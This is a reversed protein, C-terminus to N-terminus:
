ARASTPSRRLGGRARRLRLSRLTITPIARLQLVPVPSPLQWELSLSQWPNPEARERRLGDVLRPQRPVAVDLRRPLVRLDLRVRQAHAPEANYSSVRRPMGADRRRVAPLVDLNFFVFMTWFHVQRAARQAEPRDDEAALLLHGGDARVRARGHDHLPLPGDRLLQRAHQRRKDRGVPVRRVARRDPLQLLLRARVADAGHLPDAGKWLTGMANLFILGTPISILETSFMYFPRLNPNIGSVFLHHQWVM